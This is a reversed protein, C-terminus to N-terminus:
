KLLPDLEARLRERLQGADHYKLAADRLGNVVERLVHDPVNPRPLVQAMHRQTGVLVFVTDGEEAGPVVLCAAAAPSAELWERAAARLKEDAERNV